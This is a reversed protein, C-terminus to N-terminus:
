DSLGFAGGNANCDADFMWPQSLGYRNGRADSMQIEVTHTGGCTVMAIPTWKRNQHCWDYDKRECTRGQEPGSLWDSGDVRVRDVTYRSMNVLYVSYSKIPRSILRVTGKTEKRLVQVAAAAAGAQAIQVRDEARANMETLPASMVMAGFVAALGLSRALMTGNMM